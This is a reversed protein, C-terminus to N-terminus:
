RFVRNANRCLADRGARDNNRNAKVDDSKQTIWGETCSFVLVCMRNALTSRLYTVTDTYGFHLWQTRLAHRKTVERLFPM